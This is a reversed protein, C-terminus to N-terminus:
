LDEVWDKIDDISYLYDVRDNLFVKESIPCISVLYNWAEFDDIKVEEDHAVFYFAWNAVDERTLEGSIIKLLKKQIEDFGPQQIM